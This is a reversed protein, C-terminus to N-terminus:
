SGPPRMAAGEGAAPSNVSKGCSSAVTKRSSKWVAIPSLAPARTAEGTRLDSCAHHWPCRIDEGDRPGRRAAHFHSCHAGIAFIESGSRVLLVEDQRCPRAFTEGAFESLTIGKSLDPVPPPAQQDGYRGGSENRTTM